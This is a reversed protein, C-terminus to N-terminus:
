ATRVHRRWVWGMIGLMGVGLLLLSSPEPIAQQLAAAWTDGMLDYGVQDPHLNDSGIHIINGNANVFNDYQDVFRVNAGLSAYKPLIMDEIQTNYAQDIRNLNPDKLPIMNSVFLLSSPSDAVIQGILRDLRQATASATAGQFIDNGGIILLIVDRSPSKQFWFGGNSGGSGDNRDLNNAIQTITYGPHGEHHTQGAATLVSSPYDTSSGVFTFAYGANQLDTYLRTRYGGAVTYGATLSDGLPMITILDAEAAAGCFLLIGFAGLVAVGHLVRKM